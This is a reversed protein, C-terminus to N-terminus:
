LLRCPPPVLLVFSGNCSNDTHATFMSNISVYPHFAQLLLTFASGDGSKYWPMGITLLTVRVKLM